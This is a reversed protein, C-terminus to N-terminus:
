MASLYTGMQVNCEDNLNEGQSRPDCRTRGDAMWRKSEQDEACVGETSLRLM